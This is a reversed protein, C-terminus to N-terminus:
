TRTIHFITVRSANGTTPTVPLVPVLGFQAAEEQTMSSPYSTLREDDMHDRLVPSRQLFNRLDVIRHGDKPDPQSLYSVRYCHGNSGDEANGPQPAIAEKAFVYFREPWPAFINLFGDELSDVFVPFDTDAGAAVLSRRFEDAHRMREELTKPQPHRCQENGFPMPWEDVAHAEAIYVYAFRLKIPVPKEKKTGEKAQV